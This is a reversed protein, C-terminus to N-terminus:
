SAKKQIEKVTVKLKLSAEKLLDNIAIEVLTARPYGIAKAIAAAKQPSVGKRGREIDCLNAPSIGILDAFDRQSMEESLRWSRIFEAFTLPGVRKELQKLNYYKEKTSM